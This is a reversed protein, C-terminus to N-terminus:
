CDDSIFRRRIEDATMPNYPDTNFDVKADLTQLRLKPFLVGEPATLGFYNLRYLHISLREFFQVCAFYIGETVHIEPSLDASNKPVPYRGHYPVVSSLLDALEAEAATLCFTTLRNTLKKLDHGHLHKSLKGDALLSTNESILLGKILNEIAIGYLLLVPRSVYPRREIKESGDVNLYIYGVSRGKSTKYIEDATQALEEAYSYWYEPAAQEIFERKDDSM